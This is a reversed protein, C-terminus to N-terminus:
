PNRTFTVTVTNSTANGGESIVECVINATKTQGAALGSVTFNTTPLNVDDIGMLDGSLQAWQYFYPGGPGNVFTCTANASRGVSSSGTNLSLTAPLATATFGIRHIAVSLNSSQVTQGAADTVTCAFVANRTQGITLGSTSFATTAASPATASVATSGTVRSWSYTYAAYGGLATCTVDTTTLNAGAASINASAPSVNATLPLRTEAMLPSVSFM